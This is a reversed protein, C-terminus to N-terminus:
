TLPALLASETPPDLQAGPATPAQCVGPTTHSVTSVSQFQGFCVQFTRSTEVLYDQLEKGLKLGGRGAGGAGIVTQLWPTFLLYNRLVDSFAQGGREVGLPPVLDSNALRLDKDKPRSQCMVLWTQFKSNWTKKRKVINCTYTLHLYCVMHEKKYRYKDWCMIFCTHSFGCFICLTM